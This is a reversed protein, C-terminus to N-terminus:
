FGLLARGIFRLAIEFIIVGMIFYIMHKPQIKIGRGEEDFYRILGAGSAPM